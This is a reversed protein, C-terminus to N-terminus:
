HRRDSKRLKREMIKILITIVLVLVIYIMAMFLYPVMFEYNNTGIYKFAVYLDAAGM